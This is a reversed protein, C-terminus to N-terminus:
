RTFPDFSGNAGVIGRVCAGRVGVWIALAAAIALQLIRACGGQM